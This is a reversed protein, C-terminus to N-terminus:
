KGAEEQNGEGDLSYACGVTAQKRVLINYFLVHKVGAKWVFQRKM